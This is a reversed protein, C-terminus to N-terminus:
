IKQRNYNIYIYKRDRCGFHPDFHVICLFLSRKHCQINWVKNITNMEDTNPDHIAKKNM